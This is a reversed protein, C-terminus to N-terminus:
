GNGPGGEVHDVMSKLQFVIDRWAKGMSGLLRGGRASWELGDGEVVLYHSFLWLGRGGVCRGKWGRFLYIGVMAGLSLLAELRGLRM